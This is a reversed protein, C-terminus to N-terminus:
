SWISMSNMLEASTQSFGPFHSVCVALVCGPGARLTGDQKGSFEDQTGDGNLRDSQLRSGLAEM